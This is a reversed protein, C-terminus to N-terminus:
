LKCAAPFLSFATIHRVKSKGYMDSSEHIHSKHLTAMEPNPFVKVNQPQLRPLTPNPNPVEAPHLAMLDIELAAQAQPLEVHGMFHLQIRPSTPKGWTIWHM